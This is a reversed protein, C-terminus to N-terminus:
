SLYYYDEDSNSGETERQHSLTLDIDTGNSRMLRVYHGMYTPLRLTSHLIDDINSYISNNLKFVVIHLVDNLKTDFISMM